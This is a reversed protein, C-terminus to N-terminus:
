VNIILDQLPATGDLQVVWGCTWRPEEEGTRVAVRGAKGSGSQSDRLSLRVGGPRQASPPVVPRQEVPMGGGRGDADWRGCPLAVARPCSGAAAGRCGALPKLEKSREVLPMTLLNSTIFVEPPLLFIGKPKTLSSRWHRTELTYSPHAEGQRAHTFRVKQQDCNHCCHLFVNRQSSHRM